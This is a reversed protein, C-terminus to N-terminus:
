VWVAGPHMLDRCCKQKGNTDNEVGKNAADLCGEQGVVEVREDDRDDDAEERDLSKSNRLNARRTAKILENNLSALGMGHRAVMIAGVHCHGALIDTSEMGDDQRIELSIVLM